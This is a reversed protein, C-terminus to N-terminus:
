KKEDPNNKIVVTDIKKYLIVELDEYLINCINAKAIKNKTSDVRFMIAKILELCHHFDEHIYNNVFLQLESIQKVLQRRIGNYDYDQLVRALIKRNTEKNLRLSDLIDLHEKSIRVHTVNENKRPM